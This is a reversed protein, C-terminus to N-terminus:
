RFCGWGRGGQGKRDDRQNKEKRNEEEGDEAGRELVSFSVQSRPCTLCTSDWQVINRVVMM